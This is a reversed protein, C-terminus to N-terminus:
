REAELEGYAYTRNHNVDEVYFRYRDPREDPEAALRGRKRDGDVSESGLDLITSGSHLYFGVERLGSEPDSVHYRFEFGDPVRDVSISEISPPELDTYRGTM